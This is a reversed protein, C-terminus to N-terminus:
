QKWHNNCDLCTIFQTMPEDASRTQVEYYSCSRGGCRRCKFLDTMAEPKLEYKLKDKKINEEILDKWNEPFMDYNSIEGIKSIDIEKNLIKDKFNMNKLYCETDINTYMSRIKSIYLLKFHKNSWKRKINNKTSYKITENYISKEITRSINIDNLIKNLLLVYKERNKDNINNNKNM